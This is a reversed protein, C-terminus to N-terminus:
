GFFDGRRGKHGCASDLCIGGAPVDAGSYAEAPGKCKPCKMGGSVKKFGNAIAAFPNARKAGDPNKSDFKSELGILGGRSPFSSFDPTYIVRHGLSGYWADIIACDKGWKEPPPLLKQGTKSTTFDGERGVIVFCHFKRIAVCEVRCAATNKMGKTLVYAAALAFTTCCASRAALILSGGSRIDALSYMEKAGFSNAAAEADFNDRAWTQYRTTKDFVAQKDGRIAGHYLRSDSCAFNGLDNLRDLNVRLMQGTDERAPLPRLYDRGTGWVESLMRIAPAFKIFAELARSSPETSQRKLIAGNESRLDFPVTKGTDKQALLRMFLPQIYDFLSDENCLEDAHFIFATLQESPTM